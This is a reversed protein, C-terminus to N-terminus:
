RLRNQVLDNKRSARKVSQSTLKNKDLCLPMCSESWNARTKQEIDDDDFAVKQTLKSNRKQAKRILTDVCDVSRKDPRFHFTILTNEKQELSSRLLTFNQDTSFQSSLQTYNKQQAGIKM